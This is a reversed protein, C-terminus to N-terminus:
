TPTRDSDDRQAAAHPTSSRAAPLASLLERLRPTRVPKPMHHDFGAAAAEAVDSEQAYGTLAVLALDGAGPVARLARATDYGDMIPMGIDVFALEPQFERAAEVAGTGSYEVRVQHGWCELLHGLMDAADANDDVVLVRRPIQHPASEPQPTAAPVADIVPLEVTFVSGRGLGASSASVEGGHLEVLHRVVTLGLGLGAPSSAHPVGLQVFPDFVRQISEPQLGAGEDRVRIRAAAGARELTIEILAGDPSYKCANEVLNGVIQELRTVDVLATIEQDPARLELNQGRTACGAERGAVIARLATALDVPERRIEIKGRLLRSVELLDEVMRAQHEAQRRAIGLARARLGPDADDEELLDLATVIAALPNRLEHSIMALFEDKRRDAEQLEAYLRANDVALAARRGLELALGLDEETFHRGSHGASAAFVIGGLTRGRAALPVMMYSCIQQLRARELDEGELEFADIDAPAFDPVLVAHGAIIRDVLARVAPKLQEPRRDAQYPQLRAELEPDVHALAVPHFSDHEILSVSCQDGLFPVALRAVTVLTKEYDLSSALAKTADALFRLREQSARLADQAEVHATIDRGSAQCEILNGADDFFGRNTWQTWRPEGSPLIVRNEIVIEPNDPAMSAVQLHVRELDDAHVLLAYTTGILTEASRGSIACYAANVYLLTGDPKFRCVAEALGDLLERLRAADDRPDEM